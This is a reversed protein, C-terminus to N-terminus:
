WNIWVADPLVSRMVRWHGIASKAQWKELEKTKGRRLIDVKTEFASSPIEHKPLLYERRFRSGLFDAEVPKRFTVPIDTKRCFFVMNTFDDPQTNPEAAEEERFVRCSPFVSTITRYIISASPMALDGAYNIAIVGDAKLLLHLGSLFENTFLEAPEAGGTFVDHIIYDYSEAESTSPSTQANAVSSDVAAVADGIYYSHNHPLDFYKVAFEHVVPDIELITTNIGHAIMASPATGIGLGINLATKELTSSAPQVLRVAELMTFISYIPDGVKKAAGEVVPVKWEGGLLSHDCRMARFGKQNDELVSIYGTISEKRDLLTYDYLALTNNLVDTTKTLTCHPNAVMTIIVSPFAPWVLSKPIVMAYFIGVILQLGIRSRLFGPGSFSNITSKAARQLLAFLVFLGMAPVTDNLLNETGVYLPNDFFGIATCISTIVLPYCTLLETVLPGYPNGLSSSLQFLVFQISPIWFSFTAIWRSLGKPLYGRIVVAILFSVTLGYRHYVGAPIAGYVPSLNLQSLSASLAALLILQLGRQVRFDLLKSPISLPPKSSATVGIEDSSAGAQRSPETSSRAQKAAATSKNSKKAM